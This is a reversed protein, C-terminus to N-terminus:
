MGRDPEHLLGSRVRHLEFAAAPAARLDLLDDGGADRHHSM